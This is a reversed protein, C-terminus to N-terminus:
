AIPNKYERGTKVAYFRNKEICFDGEFNIIDLLRIVEQSILITDIQFNTQNVKLLLDNIIYREEQLSEAMRDFKVEDEYGKEMSFYHFKEEPTLEMRTNLSRMKLLEDSETRSKLLM